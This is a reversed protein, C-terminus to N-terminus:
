FRRRAAVIKKGELLMTLEGRVSGKRHCDGVRLLSMMYFLSNKLYEKEVKRRELSVMTGCEECLFYM